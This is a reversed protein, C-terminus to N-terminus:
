RRVTSRPSCAPAVAMSSKSPGSTSHLCCHRSRQTPLTYTPWCRTACGPWLGAPSSKCPRNPAPKTRPRIRAHRCSRSATTAPSTTCPRRQNPARLPLCQLRTCAPQRACNIAARWRLFVGELAVSLHDVQVREHGPQFQSSPFKQPEPKCGRSARTVSRPEGGAAVAWHHDQRPHRCPDDSVEMLGARM